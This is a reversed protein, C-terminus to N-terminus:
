LCEDCEDMLSEGLAPQGNGVAMIGYHQSWDVVGEEEEEEREM